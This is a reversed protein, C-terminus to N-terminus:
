LTQRRNMRRRVVPRYPYVGYYFTKRYVRNASISLNREAINRRGASLTLGSLGERGGCIEVTIRYRGTYKVPIGFRLPYKESNIEVGYPCDRRMVKAEKKGNREPIWGATGTYFDEGAREELEPLFGAGTEEGYLNSAFLRKTTENNTSDQEWQDTFRYETM